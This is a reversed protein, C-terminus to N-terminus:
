EKSGEKPEKKNESEAKKDEKVEKKEEKPAEPKETKAEEQAKVGAGQDKTEKKPAEAKEIKVDEKVAEQKQVEEEPKEEKVQREALPKKLAYRAVIYTGNAGPVAGKVAITNNEVDVDVIKVNQVTIRTNGMQSPMGHGKFVRSPYASAGISGPARHSKSGHTARGGSWNYKKMGGQFGKGKSLGTIDIYDGIQFIENTIEDGIKVDGVEDCRIEKVFKKPKLKNAEIYSRQPKKVRKAKTDGYGIQVAVYGEKENSKIAQVMCPGVELVTVPIKDGDENFIQTMGVKKGLLGPIM